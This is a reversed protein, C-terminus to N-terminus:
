TLDVQARSSNSQNQQRALYFVSHDASTGPKQLVVTAASAPMCAFGLESTHLYLDPLKTHWAKHFWLLINSSCQKRGLANLLHKFLRGCLKVLEM